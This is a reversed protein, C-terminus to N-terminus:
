LRKNSFPLISVTHTKTGKTLRKITMSCRITSWFNLFFILVFDWWVPTTRRVIAEPPLPITMLERTTNNERVVHDRYDCRPPAHTDVTTSITNRSVERPFTYNSLENSVNDSIPTYTYYSDSRSMSHDRSCRERSASRERSHNTPKRYRWRNGRDNQEGKLMQQLKKRHKQKYRTIYLYVSFVGSLETLVFSCVTMIFSAGYNYKFPAKEDGSPKGKSGVEETISGIYLIIGVLTCLGALVFLIGCVFTLSKRGSKCQGVFCIITGILLILLSALPFWTSRRMTLLIAQTQPLGEKEDSPTFYMIYNCDMRTPFYGDVRCTRWLGSWHNEYKDTDNLEEKQLDSTFLWYDTSVGIALLGFAACACASTLVM